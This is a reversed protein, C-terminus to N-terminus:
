FTTAVSPPPRTEKVKLGLLFTLAPSNTVVVAVSSEVPSVESNEAGFFTRSAYYLRDEGTAKYKVRKGEIADV